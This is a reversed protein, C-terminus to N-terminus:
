EAACLDELKAIEAEAGLAQFRARARMAMSHAESARGVRLLLRALDRQAQAALYPRSLEQAREIVESLMAEAEVDSGAAALCGALVRLDQAEGVISGIRRETAIVREIERRAMMADGALLRIEARGARALAMLRLNGSGEAREVALDATKLAEEMNGQDRYTIALNHLAEAVGMRHDARQFAALAMTYSGIARGHDGRMNAIIGLNNSCRGVTAHDGAREAEALARAFDFAAETVRGSELAIAASVNLARTEAARDGRERSQRLAREVWHGADRDNGLRGHAIGLLLALGPSQEVDKAPQDNLFEVVAAHQATAALKHADNLM